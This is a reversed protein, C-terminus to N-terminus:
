APLWDNGHRALTVTGEDETGKVHFTARDEDTGPLDVVSVLHLEEVDGGPHRETWVRRAAGEMTERHWGKDEAAAAALAQDAADTRALLEVEEGKRRRTAAVYGGVALLVVIVLLVILVIAVTSV